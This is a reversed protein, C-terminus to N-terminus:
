NTYDRRLTSTLPAIDVTYDMNTLIAAQQYALEIQIKSKEIAPMELTYTSACRQDLDSFPLIEWFAGGQLSLSTRSVYQVCLNFFASPFAGSTPLARCEVFPVLAGFNIM